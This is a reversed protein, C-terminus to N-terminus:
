APTPLKVVDTAGAGGEGAGAGTEGGARGVAAEAKEVAQALDPVSEPCEEESPTSGEVSIFQPPLLDFRWFISFSGLGLTVEECPGIIDDIWFGPCAVLTGICHFFALPSRQTRMVRTASPSACMALSAHLDAVRGGSRGSLRPGSLEM